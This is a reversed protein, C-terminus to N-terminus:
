VPQGWVWELQVSVAARGDSPTFTLTGYRTIGSTGTTTSSSVVISTSTVSSTTFGAGSMSWTGPTNSTFTESIVQGRQAQRISPSPTVTVANTWVTVWAGGRRIRIESPAVWAGSRRIRIQNVDIWAGSRRIRITM